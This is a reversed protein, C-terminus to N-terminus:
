KGKNAWIDDLPETPASEQRHAIMELQGHGGHGEEVLKEVYVPVEVIKEVVIEKVPGPVNSANWYNPNGNSPFPHTGVHGQAERRNTEYLAVSRPHTLDLDPNWKWDQTTAYRHMIQELTNKAGEVTSMFTNSIADYAHTDGLGASKANQRFHVANPHSGIPHALSDTGYHDHSEDHASVRKGLKKHLVDVLDGHGPINEIGFIKHTFTMVWADTVARYEQHQPLIWSLEAVNEDGNHHCLVLKGKAHLGGYPLHIRQDKHVLAWETFKGVKFSDRLSIGKFPNFKGSEDMIHVLQPFAAHGISSAFESNEKAFKMLSAIPIAGFTVSEKETKVDYLWTSNGTVQSELGLVSSPGRRRSEANVHCFGSTIFMVSDFSQHRHHIHTMPGITTKHKRMVERFEKQQPETLPALIPFDIALSDGAEGFLDGEPFDNDIVRYERGSHKEIEFLEDDTFMGKANMQKAHHLKEALIKFGALQNQTHEIIRHFNQQCTEVMDELQAFDNDMEEVVEDIAMVYPDADMQPNGGHREVRSDALEEKVEDMIALLNTFLLYEDRVRYFARYKCPIGICPAKAASIYFNMMKPHTKEMMCYEMIDFESGCDDQSLHVVNFIMSWVHPPCQWNEKRENAVRMFMTYVRLRLEVLLQKQDLNGLKQQGQDKVIAKQKKNLETKDKLKKEKTPPRPNPATAAKYYDFLAKKTLRDLGGYKLVKEWNAYQYSIDKKIVNFEKIVKASLEKTCNAKWKM